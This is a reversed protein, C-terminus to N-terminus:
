LFIYIYKYIYLSLYQLYISQNIYIYIYTYIYIYIYIHVLIKQWSLNSELPANPLLLQQAMGTHCTPILGESAESRKKANSVSPLPPMSSFSDPWHKEFNKPGLLNVVLCIRPKPYKSRVCYVGFVPILGLSPAHKNFKNFWWLVWFWSPSSIQHDSAEILWQRFGCHWLTTPLIMNYSRLSGHNGWTEVATEHTRERWFVQTIVWSNM